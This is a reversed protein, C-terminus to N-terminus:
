FNGTAALLSSSRANSKCHADCHTGTCGDMCDGYRAAAGVSQSDGWGGTSPSASVDQSNSSWGFGAQAPGGFGERMSDFRAQRATTQAPNSRLNESRDRVSGFSAKDRGLQRSAFGDVSYDNNPDDSFQAGPGAQLAYLMGAEGLAESSLGGGCSTHGAAHTTFPSKSHYPAGPRLGQAHQLAQAEAAAAPATAGCTPRSRLHEPRWGMQMLGQAEAMAAPASTNGCGGAFGERGARVGLEYLGMAESGAAPDPTSGCFSGKNSPCGKKSYKGLHCKDYSYYIALLIVVLVVAIFINRSKKEM